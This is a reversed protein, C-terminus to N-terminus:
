KRDDAARVPKRAVVGTSRVHREISDVLDAIGLKTNKIYKFDRLLPPLEDHTLDVNFILFPTKTTMRNQFFYNMEALPWGSHGDLYHASLFLVGLGSRNFGDNIRESISDGARIEYKDYWAAVDRQQLSEFVHDVLKRDKSSYSLFVDPKFPEKAGYDIADREPFLFLTGDGEPTLFLPFLEDPPNAVINFRKKSSATLVDGIFLNYHRARDPYNTRLWKEFEGSRKAFNLYLYFEFSYPNNNAIFVIGVLSKRDFEALLATIFPIERSRAGYDLEFVYAKERPTTTKTSKTRM